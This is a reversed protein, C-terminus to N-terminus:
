LNELELVTEATPILELQTVAEELQKQIEALEGNTVSHSDNTGKEIIAAAKEKVDKVDELEDWSEKTYDTAEKEETAVLTEKLQEIAEKVEQNEVPVSPTVEKITEELNEKAKDIEEVTAEETDLITQATNKGTTAFAITSGENDKLPFETYNVLKFEEPLAISM